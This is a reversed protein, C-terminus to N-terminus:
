TGLVRVSVSWKLNQCKLTTGWILTMGVHLYM